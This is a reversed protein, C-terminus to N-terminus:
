TSRSGADTTSACPCANRRSQQVTGLTGNKVDLGRENKLFMVRDGAAFDREGREGREVTLRVDDSLEGSQRLRGRALANLERVEANTHTLIVRSAERAAQRDREWRDVLADRAQERRRRMSWATGTM